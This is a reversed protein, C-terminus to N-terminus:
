VGPTLSDSILTMRTRYGTHSELSHCTSDVLYAGSQPGVGNITIKGGSLIEPRGVVVARGLVFQNAMEQHVSLAYTECDTATTLEANDIELFTTGFYQQAVDPGLTGGSVKQLRSSISTGFVAQNTKYDWGRAVVTGPLDHLCQRVEFHILSTPAVTIPTPPRNQPTVNLKGDKADMSCNYKRMLRKLFAANSENNQWEQVPTMPTVGAANATLTHEGAITTVIQTLTANWYRSLRKQKLRYINDLGRLLISRVGDNSYDYQIEVIDGYVQRVTFTDYGLAAIFPAGLVCLRTLETRATEDDPLLIRASLADIQSSSEELEISNVYRMTEATLLTGNLTLNFKPDGVDAM